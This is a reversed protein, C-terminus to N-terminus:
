QHGGSPAALLSVHFAGGKTHQTGVQVFGKARHFASSSPNPPELNVECTVSSFGRSRAQDFVEDYLLSGLGMGRSHAAIVIRDIYFHSPYHTEFYRYNESDYDVGPEFCVIFGVTQGERLAVSAWSARAILAAMEEESTLPVAPYAQNNLDSLAQADSAVAARVSVAATTTPDQSAKTM